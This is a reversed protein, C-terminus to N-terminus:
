ASCCQEHFHFGECTECFLIDKFYAKKVELEVSLRNTLMSREAYNLRLVHNHETYVSVMHRRKLDYIVRYTHSDKMFAILALQGNKVEKVDARDYLVCFAVKSAVKTNIM